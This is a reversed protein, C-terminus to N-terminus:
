LNGAGPQGVDGHAVFAVAGEHARAHGVLLRELHVEVFEDGTLLEGTHALDVQVVVDRVGRPHVLRERIREVAVGPNRSRAASVRPDADRRWPQVGVVVEAQIGDDFIGVVAPGLRAKAGLFARNELRDRWGQELVQPVVPPSVRLDVVGLGLQRRFLLLPDHVERSQDGLGAVGFEGASGRLEEIDVGKATEHGHRDPEAGEIRDEREALVVHHVQMRLGIPELKDRPIQIMGEAVERHLATLLLPFLQADLLRPGSLIAKELPDERHRGELLGVQRPHLFEM